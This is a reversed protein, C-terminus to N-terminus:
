GTFTSTSTSTPPRAPQAHPRPGDCCPGCRPALTRSVHKAAEGVIEVLKTLALRLLDDNWTPGSGAGHQLRGGQDGGRHLPHVRIRGGECLATPRTRRGRRAFRPGIRRRQPPDLREGPRKFPPGSPDCKGARTLQERSNGATGGASCSIRSTPSGAALPRASGPTGCTTWLPANRARTTWLNRNEAGGAPRKQQAEPESSPPASPRPPRPPTHRRTLWRRPHPQPVPTIPQEM